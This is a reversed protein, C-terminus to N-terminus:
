LAGFVLKVGDLRNCSRALIRTPVSAAFGDQYSRRELRLYTFGATVNKQQFINPNM